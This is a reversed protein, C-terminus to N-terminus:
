PTWIARTLGFVQSELSVMMPAPSIRQVHSPRISGSRNWGGQFAFALSFGADIAIKETEDTFASSSGVPYALSHIRLGLEKELIRRSETLEWRQQEASQQSLITHSCTHSGFEMGAAVMERAEGWNLFRRGPEPLSCGASERLEQLFRASDQNEPRKYHRLFPRIAAERDSGVQVRLPVPTSVELVPRDTNRVLYAIEDWWPVADSGAYEIVPFFIGPAGLSRLVPFANTYNDLYGDDFTIAAYTRDLPRKGTLLEELEEGAVIPMRKQLFRVQEGLGEATQSFVGRDYRTKSADGIRHHNLVIVGPRSPLADLLAFVGSRKLIRSLLLRKSM